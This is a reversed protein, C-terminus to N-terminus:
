ELQLLKKVSDVSHPVMSAPNTYGNTPDHIAAWLCEYASCVAEAVHFNVQQRLRLSLIRESQPVVAAANIELYGHLAQMADAMATQSTSPLTSLAVDPPKSELQQVKEDLGFRSLLAAVQEKELVGVEQDVMKSIKDMKGKTFAYGVLATQMTYLCNVTFISKSLADLGQAMECLTVLPDVIASLVHAFEAEREEKPIISTSLTEMMTTLKDLADHVVAPATLDSPVEMPDSLLKTSMNKLLEFFSKITGNKLDLLLGSLVANPGLIEPIAQAYFELINELKFLVVMNSSQAGSTTGLVQEVRVKLHKCLGEFIQDLLDFKTLEAADDSDTDSAVRSVKKDFFNQLLENEEAVSQHVWAFVDGVYRLADSTHADIPRDGASLADFFNRVVATRRGKAVEQMCQVWLAPREKLADLATIFNPTIEPSDALMLDLCMKHTYKFLREYGSLQYMYMEEMIEIGAQQHNVNLLEKCNKHINHVKALTTFFDASIDGKLCAKEEPTLQFRKLFTNVQQEKEKVEQLESQLVAATTLLASAEQQTERLMTSVGDCVEALDHVDKEVAEFLENVKDFEALFNEHLVLSRQELLGRLNKRDKVTNETYFSSLYELSDRFNDDVSIDLVKQLKRTVTVNKM